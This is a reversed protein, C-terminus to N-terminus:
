KDSQSTSNGQRKKPNATEAAERGGAGEAAQGASGRGGRGVGASGDGAGGRGGRGVRGAAPTKSAGDATAGIGHMHGRGGGVAGAEAATLKGDKNEDLKAFAQIADEMEAITIMGDGDADLAAFLPNGSQGGGFRGSAQGAGGIAQDPMLAQGRNAEPQGGGRGGRGRGAPQALVDTTFVALSLGFAITLVLSKRQM